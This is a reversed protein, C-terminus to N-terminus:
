PLRVREPLASAGRAHRPVAPVPGQVRPGLRPPRGDSQQGHDTRRPLELAAGGREAGAAARVDSARALPGPDRVGPRRLRAELHGTPVNPRQPAPRAQREPTRTEPAPSYGARSPCPQKPPDSYGVRSAGLAPRAAAHETARRPPM